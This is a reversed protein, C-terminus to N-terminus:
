GGAGTIYMCIYTPVYMRICCTPRSPRRRQTLMIAGVHALRKTESACSNDYFCDMSEDWQLIGKDTLRHSRRDAPAWGIRSGDMRRSPGDPGLHRCSQPSTKPANRGLFGGAGTIMQNVMHGIRPANRGLCICESASLTWRYNMLLWMVLWRCWNYVYM